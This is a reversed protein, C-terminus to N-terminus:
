CWVKPWFLREVLCVFFNKNTRERTWFHPYTRCLIDAIRFGELKIVDNVEYVDSSDNEEEYLKLIEFISCMFRVELAFEEFHTEVSLHYSWYIVEGPTKSKIKFSRKDQIGAFKFWM